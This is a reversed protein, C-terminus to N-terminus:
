KLPVMSVCQIETGSVAADLSSPLALDILALKIEAHKKEPLADHGDSTTMRQQRRDKSGGDQGAAGAIVGLDNRTDVQEAHGDDVLGGRQRM